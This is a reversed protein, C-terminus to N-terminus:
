GTKGQEVRGWVAMASCRARGAVDGGCRHSPQRLEHLPLPLDKLPVDGRGVDIIAQLDAPAQHSCAKCWVFLCLWRDQPLMTGATPPDDTM